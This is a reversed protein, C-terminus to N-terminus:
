FNKVVYLNYDNTIYKSFPDDKFLTKNSLTFSKDESMKSNMKEGKRVTVEEKYDASNKFVALIDERAVCEIFEKNKHIMLSDIMYNSPVYLSTSKYLSELRIYNNEGRMVSGLVKLKVPQNIQKIFYSYSDDINKDISGKFDNLTKEVNEIDYQNSNIIIAVSEFLKLSLLDVIFSNVQRTNVWYELDMNFKKKIDAEGYILIEMNHDNISKRIEVFEEIGKVYNIFGKKCYEKNLM